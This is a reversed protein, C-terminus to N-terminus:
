FWDNYSSIISNSLIFHYKGLKTDSLPLRDQLRNLLTEYGAHTIDRKIMVKKVTPIFICFNYELQKIIVCLTDMAERQVDPFPSDM